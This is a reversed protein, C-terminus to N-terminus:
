EYYIQDQFKPDKCNCFPFFKDGCCPQLWPRVVLKLPSFQDPVPLISKEHAIKAKQIGEVITKHAPDDVSLSNKESPDKGINYLLPPDHLDQGGMFCRCLLGDCLNTGEKLKPTAYLVKWVDDGPQSIVFIYFLM